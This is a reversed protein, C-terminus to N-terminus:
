RHEVGQAHHDSRGGEQRRQELREWKPHVPNTKGHQGLLENKLSRQGQGAGVLPEPGVRGGERGRSSPHGDDGTKIRTSGDELKAVVGEEHQHQADHAGHVSVTRAGVGHKRHPKSKSEKRFGEIGAERAHGALEAQDDTDQDQKAVGVLTMAVVGQAQTERQEGDRQNVGRAGNVESQEEQAMNEVPQRQVILLVM